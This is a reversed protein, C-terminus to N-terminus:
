VCRVNLCYICVSEIAKNSYIFSPRWILRLSRLCLSSFMNKLSHLVGTKHQLCLCCQGCTMKRILHPTHTSSVGGGGLVLLSTCYLHPHATVFWVCQNETCILIHLVLLACRLYLPPHATNWWYLYPHAICVLSCWWTKLFRPPPPSPPM